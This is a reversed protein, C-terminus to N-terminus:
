PFSGLLSQLALNPLFYGGLYLYFFQKCRNIVVIGFEMEGHMAEKAGDM